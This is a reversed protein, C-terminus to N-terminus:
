SYITFLYHLCYMIMGGVLHELLTYLPWVLRAARDKADLLYLRDKSTDRRDIVDVNLDAVTQTLDRSVPLLLSQHPIDDKVM